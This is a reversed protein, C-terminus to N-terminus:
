YINTLHTFIIVISSQYLLLMFIMVSHLLFLTMLDNKRLVIQRIVIEEYVSFYGFKSLNSVCLKFVLELIPSASKAKPSNM